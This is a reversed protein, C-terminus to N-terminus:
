RYHDTRHPSYRFLQIWWCKHTESGTHEILPPQPAIFTEAALPTRRQQGRCKIDGLDLHAEQSLTSVRLSGAKQLNHNNNCAEPVANEKIALDLNHKNDWHVSNRKTPRSYTVSPPTHKLYAQAVPSLPPLAMASGLFKTYMEARPSRVRKVLPHVKKQFASDSTGSARVLNAGWCRVTIEACSSFM